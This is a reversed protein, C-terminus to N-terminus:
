ILRVDFYRLMQPSQYHNGLNRPEVFKLKKVLSSHCPQRSWQHLKHFTYESAENFPELVLESFRRGISFYGSLFDSLDQDNWTTSTNDTECSVIATYNRRQPHVRLAELFSGSHCAYVFVAKKGKIRDLDKLMKKYPLQSNGMEISGNEGHSFIIMTTLTDDASLHSLREVAAKYEPLVEETGPWVKAVEKYDSHWIRKQEYDRLEEQWFERVREEPNIRRIRTVADPLSFVATTTILDDIANLPCRKGFDVTGTMLMEWRYLDINGSVRPDWKPLEPPAIFGTLFNKGAVLLGYKEKPQFVEDLIPEDTPFPIIQGM